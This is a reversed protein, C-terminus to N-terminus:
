EIVELPSDDNFYSDPRETVGAQWVRGAPWPLWRQNDHSTSLQYSGRAVSGQGATNYIYSTGDAPDGPHANVLLRGETTWRPGVLSLDTPPELFTVSETELSILAVRDCSPECLQKNLATFALYNGDPSWSLDRFKWISGDSEFWTQLSSADTAVTYIKIGETVAILDDKPSFAISVPELYLTRRLKKYGEFTIANAPTPTPEPTPISVAANPATDGPPTFANAQPAAPNGGAPQVLLAPISVIPITDDVFSTAVVENALWAFQGESTSVLWWSSDVNRGVIELSGGFPLSGIKNYQVGPGNRLNVGSQNALALPKASPPTPVAPQPPPEQFLGINEVPRGPPPAEAQFPLTPIDGVLSISLLNVSTCAFGLLIVTIITGCGFTLGIQTGCGGILLKGIHRQWIANIM